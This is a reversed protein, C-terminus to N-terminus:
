RKAYHNPCTPNMCKMCMGAPAEPNVDITQRARDYGCQSCDYEVIRVKRGSDGLGRISQVSNELERVVTLNWLRSHEIQCEECFQPFASSNVPEDCDHKYCTPTM